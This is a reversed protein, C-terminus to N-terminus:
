AMYILPFQAVSGPWAVNSTSLGAVPPTMLDRGSPPPAAALSAISAAASAKTVQRAVV